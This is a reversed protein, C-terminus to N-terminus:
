EDDQGLETNLYWLPATLMHVRDGYGPWTNFTRCTDFMDIAQRMHHHGAQLFEADMEVVSVLHPEEVGVLVHLFRPANGTVQEWMARYWAAQLPYDLNAAQRRWVSPNADRTTKVDVLTGNTEWDIRGRLWVGTKGDQTYISQEPTGTEFLQGAVRHNIVADAANQARQFDALAIPVEGLARHAEVDERAAKTRLSEHEHVYLNLGAGLVLAHVVHGFDFATNPASPHDKSWRYLAPCDLLRKAETSSLSDAPGFACSHYDLEPIDPYIGATFQNATM